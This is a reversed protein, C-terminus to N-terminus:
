CEPSLASVPKASPRVKVVRQDAALTTLELM